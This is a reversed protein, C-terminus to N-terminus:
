SGSRPEPAVLGRLVDARDVVGVLRQEADVVAVLKQAGTLMPGIVDRLPTDERATPVPLMLESALQARAHHSLTAAEPDEHSFPLRRVLSRLIGPRLAPTVRELLEADTVLGIARHTGDVVVARNLRTSAVAQLVEQVPTDPLVAPVERRMVRSVPLDARLGTNRPEADPLSFGEVVTRLVDLRSVIGALRGSGDLVPLRKLRRRAMLEAVETLPTSLLVMVVPASMVDRATKNQQDLEALMAGLEARDLRPMLELRAKLGGRTLLDSNTIIGVPVGGELVPLARHSKGLMVQVVERLTATSPVTTVGRSMVDGATVHAPVARVAHPVFSAVTTEDVTVLARGILGQLPGLLRDVREPTDVWEVVLPLRPLMGEILRDSRLEGKAGFGASGRFVTAGNANEQMLFDLIADQAVREGIRDGEHLYIRVRKGKGSATTM